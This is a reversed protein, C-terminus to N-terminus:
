WMINTSTYVYALMNNSVKTNHQIYIEFLNKYCHYSVKNNDKEVGKAYIHIQRKQSWMKYIFM